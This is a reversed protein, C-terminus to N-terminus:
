GRYESLLEPDVESLLQASADKESLVPNKIPWPIGIAPDNWRVGFEGIPDYVDSCKYEVEAAESTVV